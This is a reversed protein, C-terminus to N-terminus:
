RSINDTLISMIKDTTVYGPIVLGNEMFIMPTGNVKLDRAISYNDSIPNQCSQNKVFDNDFARNLADKQDKSCWISVMDAYADDDNGNRSFLVYRVEVDNMLLDDVENHLKQCYPCSTDTFITLIYKTSDPKYTIVNKDNIKSLYKIRERKMKNETLNSGTEFDIVNGVILHKFDSTLYYLQDQIAIEFFSNNVKEISDIKINPYKEEMAKQADVKSNNTQSCSIITTMIFIILFIKHM